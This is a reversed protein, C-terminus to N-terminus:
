MHAQPLMDVVSVTGKLGHQHLKSFRWLLLFISELFYLGLQFARWVPFLHILSVEQKRCFYYEKIISKKKLDRDVPQFTQRTSVLLFKDIKVFSSHSWCPRFHWQLLNFQLPKRSLLMKSNWIDSEFSLMAAPQKMTIFDVLYQAM